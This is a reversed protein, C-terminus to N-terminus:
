PTLKRRVYEGSSTQDLFGDGALRSLISNSMEDSGLGFLVRARDPTVRLCPMEDFEARVRTLTDVWLGDPIRDTRRRDQQM